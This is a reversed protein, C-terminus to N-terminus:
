QIARIMRASDMRLPSRTETLVRDICITPTRFELSLLSLANMLFFFFLAFFWEGVKLKAHVFWIMLYLDGHRSSRTAAGFPVARATCFLANCLIGAGGECATAATCFPAGSERERGGFGWIWFGRFSAWERWNWFGWWNLNKFEFGCLIWGWRCICDLGDHIEQEWSGEWAEWRM